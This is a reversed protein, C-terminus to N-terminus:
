KPVGPPIVAWYARGNTNPDTNDSTSFVFPAGTWHSYRGLGLKGISAHDSHAPGLLHDNEYLLVPSHFNDDNSDALINLASSFPRVNGLYAFKSNDFKKFAYFLRFKEGSPGIPPAYNYKSYLAVSFYIVTGALAGAWIKSRTWQMQRWYWVARVFVGGSLAPNTAAMQVASRQSIGPTPDRRRTDVTDSM